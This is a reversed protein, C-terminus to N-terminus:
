ECKFILVLALWTMWTSTGGSSIFCPKGRSLFYSVAVAWILYLSPFCHAFGVGVVLLKGFVTANRPLSSLELLLLFTFFSWYSDAKSFM